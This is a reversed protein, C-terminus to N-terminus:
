HMCTLIFKSVYFLLFKKQSVIKKVPPLSKEVCDFHKERKIFKEDILRM